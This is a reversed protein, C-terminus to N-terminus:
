GLARVEDEDGLVVLQDGLALSTDGPPGVLLTGDTRRVALVSVNRVGRCVKELCEGVLRSDGKVELDALIMDGHRGHILTDMFDVM